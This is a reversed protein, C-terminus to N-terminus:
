RSRGKDSGHGKHESLPEETQHIVEGTAKDVVRDYYRNNNRDIVREKEVWDGQAHRRDDGSFFRIRDRKRSPLAPDKLVGALGDHFELRESVKLEIRRVRAGCEPCPGSDPGLSAGCAECSFTKSVSEM